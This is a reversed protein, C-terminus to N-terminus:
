LSAPTMISILKAATAGPNEIIHTTAASFYLSANKELKVSQDKIKIVVTGELVFIFREAGPKGQEPDTSTHGNMRILLPLMKKSAAQRSLIACSIRDNTSVLTDTPNEAKLATLAPKELGEYLEALNVGLAKAINLHSGLTGTMKGNEIRSLTAIQVQSETSLETLSIKRIKRIQRIHAGIEKLM